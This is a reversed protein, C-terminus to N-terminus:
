PLATTIVARTQDDDGHFPNSRCSPYYPGQLQRCVDHCSGALAIIGCPELSGNAAVYGYACDRDDAQATAVNDPDYCAYLRPSSSFLNGWFAGEIHPYAQTEASTLSSKLPDLSSRVSIIVEVGYWNTRAALCASVMEQGTLDLPGTAWAPALGLSGPYTENHVVNSADTWSFSFSQSPTLACSVTYKLLARSLTGGQGPDQLATLGNPSLANPSLANPSLANPSLANPSLANPSLANPSLANDSVVASQATGVDAGDPETMCGVLNFLVLLLAVSTSTRSM